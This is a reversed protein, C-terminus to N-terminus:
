SARGIEAHVAPASASATSRPSAQALTHQHAVVVGALRAPLDARVKLNVVLYGLGLTAAVGHVVQLRQARRAVCALGCFVGSAGLLPRRAIRISPRYTCSVWPVCSWAQPASYPRVLADRELGHWPM